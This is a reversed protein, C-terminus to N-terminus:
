SCLQTVDELLVRTEGVRQQQQHESSQAIVPSYYEVLLNGAM